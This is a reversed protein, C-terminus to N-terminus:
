RLAYLVILPANGVLQHRITSTTDKLAPTRVIILLLLITGARVHGAIVQIQAHKVFLHVIFQRPLGMTMTAELLFM